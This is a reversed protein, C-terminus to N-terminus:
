KVELDINNKFQIYTWLENMDETLVGDRLNDKLFDLADDKKIFTTHYWKTFEQKTHPNIFVLLPRNDSTVGCSTPYMKETPDVEYDEFYYIYSKIPEKHIDDYYDVSVGIDNLKVVINHEWLAFSTVRIILENDQKMNAACWNLLIHKNDKIEDDYVFPYLYEQYKSVLYQKVSYDDEFNDLFKKFEKSQQNIDSIMTIVVEDYSTIYINAINDNNFVMTAELTDTQSYKIPDFDMGNIKLNMIKLNSM